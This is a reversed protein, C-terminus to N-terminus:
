SQQPSLTNFREKQEDSLSQYFKALAPHV